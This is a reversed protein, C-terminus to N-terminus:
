RRYKRIGTRIGAVKGIRAVGPGIDLVPWSWSNSITVPFLLPPSALTSVLSLLEIRASIRM